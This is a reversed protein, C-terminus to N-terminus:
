RGPLKQKEKFKWEKVLGQIKKSEKVYCMAFNFEKIFDHCLFPFAIVKYNRSSFWAQCKVPFCDAITCHAHSINKM